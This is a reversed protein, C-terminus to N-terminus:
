SNAERLTTPVFFFEGGQDGASSLPAYVPRQVVDLSAAGQEVPDVLHDYLQGGDLVIENNALQELLAKAFVSHTGGAGADVVPSFGGSTLALRSTKELQKRVFTLRDVTPPPRPRQEGALAGAYCSDAIVLVNRATVERLLDSVDETSLWNVTSDPDADVPQWYLSRDTYLAGHGAYYLLLSDEPGVKAAVEELYEYIQRRTGDYLTTVEFGYREALVEGVAGADAVATRLRPLSRYDNNGIVLAYYRGFHLDAPLPRPLIDEVVEPGGPEPVVRQQRLVVFITALLLLVALPAALRAWRPIGTSPPPGLSVTPDMPGPLVTTSSTELQMRASRLRTEETGFIDLDEGPAATEPDTQCLGILRTTEEVNDGERHDVAALAERFETAGDFREERTKSLSRLVASRLEEPVEDRPDSQSFPVPPKFLHGGILSNTDHGEIPYLGTLMEYLVIGFSYLDSRSDIPTNGFQEPSAYQVKGIFTGTRTIQRDDSEETKKAIGLDIVKVVPHGETDRGLMINDPSIDRHVFGRRHLYALAELGQDALFLTFPLSPPGAVDLIQRLTVGDIFEMVIYASGEPAVEFEYLQAINPHRLEAELRAERLFRAEFDDDGSVHPRMIKIVRHQDLHRHRVKYIAGMGGEGIKALVEYTDRFARTSM